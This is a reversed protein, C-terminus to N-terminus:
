RIHCAYTDKRDVRDVLATHFEFNTDGVVTWFSPAPTSTHSM